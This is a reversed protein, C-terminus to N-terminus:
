ELFTHSNFIPPSSAGKLKSKQIATYEIWKLFVAIKQRRAHYREATEMTGYERRYYFADFPPYYLSCLPSLYGKPLLSYSLTLKPNSIILEKQTPSSEAYHHRRTRRHSHSGCRSSDSIRLRDELMKQWRSSSYLKRHFNAQMKLYQRRQFIARYWSQITVAASVYRAFRPQSSIYL